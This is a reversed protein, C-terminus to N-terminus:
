PHETMRSVRQFGHNLLAWRIPDFKAPTPSDTEGKANQVDYNDSMFARTM